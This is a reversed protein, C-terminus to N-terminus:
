GGVRLLSVTTVDSVYRGGREDGPVVLRPRKLPHRDEEVALLVENGAFGPDIEGWAVVAQYEDMATVLVAHRLQDNKVGPDFTPEAAALVDFLLPGRYAHREREGGALFGVRERRQPFARLDDMTLRLPHAVAGDVTTVTRESTAIAPGAAPLLVFLAALLTLLSTLRTRM